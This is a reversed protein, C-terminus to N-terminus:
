QSQTLQSRRILVEVRGDRRLEVDGFKGSSSIRNAPVGAEILSDRVAQVRRKMLDQNRWDATQADTSGDIGLQISQNQKMYAAIEEVKNLDADVIVAKDADFRFNQYATWRESVDAAATQGAQLATLQGTRIMYAVRDESIRAADGPTASSIQGAPVGAKILADHVAKIRRQMLDQDRPEVSSADTSGDLSLQLSPNQKMHAAIETVKHLDSDHIVAQDADFRFDGQTSWRDGAEASGHQAVPQQGIQEYQVYPQKPAAYAVQRQDAQEYQQQGAPAAQAATFQGSRILVGVRGDRRLSADGYMGSSIQTAPVGARILSERVASIRSNTLDQNRADAVRQATSGDIGLQMSPNQRVYAAIESVKAMDADHIATQSGEFWFERYAFWQDVMGAPGQPGTPGMPGQPGAIGAPGAAGAIGATTSGQAGTQGIEGQAGAPGAQGASGAPGVMTPGKPGTAGVAGQAGTPGAPGAAGAYGAASAGRAGTQGIQGQAGAVGAPGVAGAPGIAVEGVSGAAGMRGPQGAVGAPGAVGREGAVAYGAAGTQGVPGQAGRAGAPGEPGRSGVFSTQQASQYSQEPYTQATQQPQTSSCGAAVLMTTALLLRKM